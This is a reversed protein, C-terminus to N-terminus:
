GTYFFDVIIKVTDYDCGVMPVESTSSEKMNASFMCRFYESSLSLILRHASIDGGEAVLTVDVLQKSSRTENLTQMFKSAYNKTEML